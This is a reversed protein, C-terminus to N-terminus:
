MAGEEFGFCTVTFLSLPLRRVGVTMNVCIHSWFLCVVACVWLKSAEKSLKLRKDTGTTSTRTMHPKTNNISHAIVTFFFFLFGFVIQPQITVGTSETAM